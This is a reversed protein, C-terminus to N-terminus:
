PNVTLNTSCDIPLELTFTGRSTGPETYRLDALQVFTQSTCDQASLKAVPFRAFGLFIQTRRDESIERLVRDLPGAPKEYKVIRSVPAEAGLTLHFRYTAKDTEFVCDWGFPNALTPMAALRSVKEDKGAVVTAQEFAREEARSHAFMLAGWYAVVVVLSTIALKPGLRDGVKKIFLLVLGLMTTLWIARLVWPYPFNGGRPNFVIFLTLVIGLFLWVLRLFRTRTTLLFCGSGLILWIFPDVIFVFDGYFWNSSWPLFPRIGYNNTWDLLPHTFTVLLSVILLPVFRVQLRRKRIKSIIFDCALFLLPLLISLVLTGVLAHSIGRHHQLFSWRDRFLLVVIDADPSNAALVCLATAGPSLRELGSKAAALGVLSHTLNDM